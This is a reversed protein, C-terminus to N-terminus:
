CLGNPVSVIWRFLEQILANTYPLHIRDSIKPLRQPEVVADIEEQAKKFATPNLVM